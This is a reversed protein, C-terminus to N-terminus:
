LIGLQLPPMSIAKASSKLCSFYMVPPDTMIYDQSSLSLFLNLIWLNYFEGSKVGEEMM